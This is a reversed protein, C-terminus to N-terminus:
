AGKKFDYGINSFTSHIKKYYFNGPEVGMIKVLGTTWSLDAGSLNAGELDAWSLNARSLNERSLNARKGTTSDVLWKKHEELIKKIDM